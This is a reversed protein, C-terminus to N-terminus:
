EEVAYKEWFLEFCQDCNKSVKGCYGMRYFEKGKVVDGPCFRCSEKGPFSRMEEFPIKIYKKPNVPDRYGKKSKELIILAALAREPTDAFAVEDSRQLDAFKENYACWQNGDMQITYKKSEM